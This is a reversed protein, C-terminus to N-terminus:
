DDVFLQGAHTGTLLRRIWRKLLEPSANDIRGQTEADVPGRAQLAALLMAADEQAREQRGIKKGHAIIHKVVDSQM